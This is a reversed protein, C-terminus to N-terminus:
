ACVRFDHFQLAHDTSRLMAWLDKTTCDEYVRRVQVWVTGDSMEHQTHMLLSVREKTDINGCAHQVDDISFYLSMDACAMATIAIYPKKTDTLHENVRTNVDNLLTELKVIRRELKTMSSTFVPLKQEYNVMPRPQPAKVESTTISRVTSSIPRQNRRRRRRQYMNNKVLHYVNEM